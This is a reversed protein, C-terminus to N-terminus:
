ISYWMQPSLRCNILWIDILQHYKMEHAEYEFPTKM